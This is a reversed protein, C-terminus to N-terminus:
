GRRVESAGEGAPFHGQSERRWVKTVASDVTSAEIARERGTEGEQHLSVCLMETPTLHTPDLSELPTGALCFAAPQAEPRSHLRLCNCQRESGTEGSTFPMAEGHGLHPQRGRRLAQGPGPAAGQRLAGLTWCTRAKAHLHGLMLCRDAAPAQGPLWCRLLTGLPGRAM